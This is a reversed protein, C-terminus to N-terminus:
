PLDQWAAARDRVLDFRGDATQWRLLAGRAEDIALLPRDESDDTVVARRSAVGQRDLALVTWSAPEVTKYLLLGGEDTQIVTPYLSGKDGFSEHESWDEPWKEGPTELVPTASASGGLRSSSEISIQSPEM